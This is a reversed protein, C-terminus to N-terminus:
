RKPQSCSQFRQRSQVAPPTIAYVLGLRVRIDKPNLQLVKQYARIAAGFDGLALQAQAWAVIDNADTLQELAPAAMIVAKAADDVAQTTEPPSQKEVYVTPAAM